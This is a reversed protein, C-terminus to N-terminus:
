CVKNSEDVATRIKKKKFKNIMGKVQRRQAEYDHNGNFNYIFFFIKCKM